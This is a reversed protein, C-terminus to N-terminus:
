TRLTQYGGPVDDIKLSPIADLDLGYGTRPLASGYRFAAAAAVMAGNDTCLGPRPLLVPVPARAQMQERLLSNAAVGGGLIVGRAGHIGVAQLTKTVLVEVVSRQFGAAFPGVVPVPTDQVRRVLATKLGSFSFDLGGEHLMPPTFPESSKAGAAARQIEPGGPFGLGLLRAAKDFAEGASDDRTKGLLRYQGHNSMLVLETHGGSALLIILPFGPEKSPDPADELWFAYIHGEMHNMGLLPMGLSLALGKAFNLGVLLSGALGPGNTVAIADLDQPRTRALELAQHYIPLIALVHQRSAVEPVIGGYRAHIEVQSSVVNSLLKRGDEVIGIATEDCSSEIGLIRM